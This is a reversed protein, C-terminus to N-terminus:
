EIYGGNAQIVADIRPRFRECARQLTVSDMGVFAPKIATRLSTMNPHRSKNTVREVVSWVYYDLPNLDSSNPPWFEKSRSRSTVCVVDYVTSRPYEFFRIIETASRGARLGEIITARRNYEASPKLMAAM